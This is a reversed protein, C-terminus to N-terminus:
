KKVIEDLMIDFEYNDQHELEPNDKLIEQTTKDRQKCQPIKRRNRIHEKIEKLTESIAEERAQKEEELKRNDNFIKYDEKIKQEMYEHSVSGYGQLIPYEASKVVDDTKKIWDEITMKFGRRTQLDLYDLLLNVLSTLHDLERDNLYNKSILVDGQIIRNGKFSTLGFNKKNRDHRELILEAATKGTIAYLLKNQIGAFFNKVYKEQKNQEYDVATAYIDRVQKYFVKESARIEKVRELLEKFYRDSSPDKLKEDDMVFGKILYEKLIKTAWIRFQTAKASNVRYGVAIIMDLNYHLVDDYDKNDSATIEMKSIVSNDLEGSELIHNIHKNIGGVGIGFIAAIQKQTAWLTNGDFCKLEVNSGNQCHYIFLQLEESSM